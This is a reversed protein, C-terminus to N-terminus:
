FKYTKLLGDLADDELIGVHRYVEKGRGDFVIQTPIMMVKLAVAAEREKKVNIFRIIYDPHQKAVVYLKKGMVRCSRCSDSGVELFVPKGKGIETKVQMFPTAELMPRGHVEAGCLGLTLLAVIWIYRKM